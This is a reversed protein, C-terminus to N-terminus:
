RDLVQTCRFACSSTRIDLGGRFFCQRWATAQVVVSKEIWNLFWSFITKGGRGDCVCRRAFRWNYEEEEEDQKTITYEISFICVASNNSPFAWVKKERMGKRRWKFSEVFHFFLGRKYLMTLLSSVPFLVPWREDCALADILGFYFYIRNSKGGKIM